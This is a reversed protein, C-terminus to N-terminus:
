SAGGHSLPQYIPELMNAPHRGSTVSGTGGRDSSNEGRKVRGCGAPPSLLSQNCDRQPQQLWSPMCSCVCSHRCIALTMLIIIPLTPVGARPEPGLVPAPTHSPYTVIQM